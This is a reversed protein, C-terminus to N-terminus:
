RATAAAGLAQWIEAALEAQKFPKALMPGYGLGLDEWPAGGFYGSAYIIPLNPRMQRARHALGFGNLREPLVIDTFLLDVAQDPDGLVDLAEKPNAAAIVRFGESELMEAVVPRVGEDDEVVLIVPESGSGASANQAM